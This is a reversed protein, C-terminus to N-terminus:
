ENEEVLPPRQTRKGADRAILGNHLARVEYVSVNAAGDNRRWSRLERAHEGSVMNTPDNIYAEVVPYSHADDRDVVDDLWAPGEGKVIWDLRAGYLAALDSITNISPSPVKGNEYRTLSSPDLTIKAQALRAIVQQQTLGARARASKLRRGMADLDLSSVGVRLLRGSLGAFAPRTM